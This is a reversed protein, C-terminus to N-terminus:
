FRTPPEARDYDDEDDDEDEDELLPTNAIQVRISGTSSISQRYFETAQYLDALFL